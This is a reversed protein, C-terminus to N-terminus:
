ESNRETSKAARIEQAQKQLIHRALLQRQADTLVDFNVALTWGENRDNRDCRLVRVPLALGLPAPLLIMRLALWSDVPYAESSEFSLGGESITVDMPEGFDGSLEIALTKGLLDMRKNIIKLYQALARDRESIQRLLHQSEYDLLHMETLLDFLVGHQSGLDADPGDIPKFDLVMQDQIRFFERKDENDTQM